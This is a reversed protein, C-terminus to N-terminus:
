AAEVASGMVVLAGVLLLLMLVVQVVAMQQLLALSLNLELLTLVSVRVWLLQM